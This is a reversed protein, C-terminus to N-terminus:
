FISWSFCHRLYRYGSNRHIKVMRYLAYFYFVDWIVLSLQLNFFFWLGIKYLIKYGEETSVEPYGGLMIGYLMMMLIHAIAVIYWASHRSSFHFSSWALCLVCVFELRWITAAILWDNKLNDIRVNWEVDTSSLAETSVLMVILMLLSGLAYVYGAIKSM